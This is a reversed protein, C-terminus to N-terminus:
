TSNNTWFKAHAHIYFVDCEYRFLIYAKENM